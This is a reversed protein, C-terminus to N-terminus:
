LHVSSSKIEMNSILAGDMTILNAGMNERGPFVRISHYEGSDVSSAAEKRYAWLSIYM